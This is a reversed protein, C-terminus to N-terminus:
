RDDAFLMAYPAEGTLWDGVAENFGNATVVVTTDREPFHFALTQYPYVSGYHGFAPGYATQIRALGLGYADELGEDADEPYVHWDLMEEMADPGLWTASGLARTVTALDAPTSVLGGDLKGAGGMVSETLVTHDVMVGRGHQDAYGRVIAGETTSRGATADLGLPQLVAEHVVDYAPQGTVSELALSLLLYNANSYRYPGGPTHWAARGHTWGLEEEATAGALEGDFAALFYGMSLYDVIGSTHQLLQRLTVADAGTRDLNEIADVHEDPLLDRAPTDLDLAGREQLRLFTAATLMKTTSAVYFRHCTETSIGQRLDAHGGAGLWLGDADIVAASVGPSGLALVEDVLARYRAARPHPAVEVPTCAYTEPAPLDPGCAALLLPALLRTM